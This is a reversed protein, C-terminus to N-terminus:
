FSDQLECGTKILEEMENGCWGHILDDRKLTGFMYVSRFTREIMPALDAPIVGANAAGCSRAIELMRERVCEAVPVDHREAATEAEVWEFGDPALLQRLRQSPARDYSPSVVNKM